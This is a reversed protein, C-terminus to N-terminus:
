ASFSVAMRESFSIFLTVTTRMSTGQQPPMSFAAFRARCALPFNIGQCTTVTFVSPVSCPSYLKGSKVAHM